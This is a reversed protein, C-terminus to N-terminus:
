FKAILKLNIRRGTLYNPVGYEWGRIDTVYTYSIENNIDLLNFVELSIWIDKFYGLFNGEPLVKNESKLQKSIGLDVRRYPKFRPYPKDTKEVPLGTGFLISIYAQWTEHKPIYDQFFIGFNVRQDTPRPIMGLYVTDTTGDAYRNIYSDNEIDEMTQMVAVSFWSETGPVFEGNIKAEFGTSYGTAMNEGYYRIRVNDVDYPILNYLYKYYIETVLKFPRNWARFVYDSGAVIQYSSQSKINYNLTGDLKRIEKFFPTQHYLGSSLRFVIDKKWEPKIGVNVRPSILFENNFDWYNFRLGGGFILNCKKLEIMYSDQVFASMRNSLINMEAIDTMFLPVIDRNAPILNQDSYGYSGLSYGASDIMNWEHVIYDFTEHNYQGGWVITHNGIKYDGIHKFSIVYGDLYNRAHELYSGIGINAVSDGMNDSGLQKDLENLYYQGLIDFTEEEKTYYGSLIFKLELDQSVKYNGTFAGTLNNFKDKEQGEFYMMIKLAENLTGWSTERDKPIFSYVNNSVNGLFSLEFKESFDYSLYTQFDLYTPDYQGKMDMSSLVYKTTKYRFGTNYRFLHNKSVGELHINSGLLSATVSGGFQTPKRYKIDLVSSMKDGYKSEFGGASFIVSSVMDSNIFSMGEQQGARILIPRFIEVDNVFVLNEDFNGGRVNYQSSLENNSTVSPLSKLIDEFGGITPIKLSIEPNIRNINGLRDSNSGINTEPLFNVSEKLIVRIEKIEKSKLNLDMIETEYGLYSIELRINKDSPVSLEFFGNEDSATGIKLGTVSINAFHFPKSNNDFVFGTVVATQSFLGLATLLFCAYFAIRKYDM